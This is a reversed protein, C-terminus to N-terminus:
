IYDGKVNQATIFRISSYENEVRNMYRLDMEGNVNIYKKSIAM